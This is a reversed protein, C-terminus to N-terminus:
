RSVVVRVDSYDSDIDSFATAYKYIDEITIDNISLSSIGTAKSRNSFYYANQELTFKNNYTFRRLDPASDMFKPYIGIHSQNLSTEEKSCVITYDRVKIKLLYWYICVVDTVDAEFYNCLPSNPFKDRIFRKSGKESQSRYGDPLIGAKWSWNNIEVDDKQQGYEELFLNLLVGRIETLTMNSHHQMMGKKSIAQELGIYRVKVNQLYGTLYEKVEMCYVTNDMVPGQRRNNGSFEVISLIEGFPNGILVAMNTKSPDIVLVVDGAEQLSEINDGSSFWRSHVNNTVVLM